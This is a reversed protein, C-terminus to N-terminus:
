IKNFYFEGLNLMDHKNDLSYTFCPLCKGKYQKYQLPQFTHFHIEDSHKNKYRARPIVLIVEFVLGPAVYGRLM